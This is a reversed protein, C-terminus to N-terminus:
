ESPEYELLFDHSFHAQHLCVGSQRMKNVRQAYLLTFVCLTFHWLTTFALGDYLNKGRAPEQQNRPSKPM